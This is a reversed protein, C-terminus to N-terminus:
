GNFLCVFLRICLCVFLCVFMRMQEGVSVAQNIYLCFM